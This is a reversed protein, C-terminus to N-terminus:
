METEMCYVKCKGEKLILLEIYAHNLIGYRLELNNCIISKLKRLKLINYRSYDATLKNHINYNSHDM